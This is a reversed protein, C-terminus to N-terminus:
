GDYTRLHCLDDRARASAASGQICHAYSCGEIRTCIRIQSPTIRPCKHDIAGSCTSKRVLFSAHCESKRNPITRPRISSVQYLSLCDTLYLSKIQQRYSASVYRSASATAGTGGMRMSKDMTQRMRLGQQVSADVNVRREAIVKEKQEIDMGEMRNALNFVNDRRGQSRQMSGQPMEVGLQSLPSRQSPQQQSLVAMDSDQSDDSFQSKVQFEGADNLESILRDWLAAKDKV